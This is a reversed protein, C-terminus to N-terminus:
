FSSISLPKLIQLSELTLFCFIIGSYKCPNYAYIKHQIIQNIYKPEGQYFAEVTDWPHLGALKRCKQINTAVLRYYYIQDDTEDYSKDM